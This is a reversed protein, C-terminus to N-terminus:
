LYQQLWEDGPNNVYSWGGATTRETSHAAGTNLLQLKGISFPQALRRMQWVSLLNVSQRAEDNHIFYLGGEAPQLTWILRNIVHARDLPISQKNQWGVIEAVYQVTALNDTTSVFLRMRDDVGPPQEALKKIQKPSYPQLFMIQHPCHAQVLLIEELVSTYVGNIFLAEQRTPM